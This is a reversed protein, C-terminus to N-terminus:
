DLRLKLEGWSAAGEKTALEPDGKGVGIRKSCNLRGHKRENGWIIASRKVMKGYRSALGGPV